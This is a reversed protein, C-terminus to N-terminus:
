IVLAFLNRLFESFIHKELFNFLLIVLIHGALM